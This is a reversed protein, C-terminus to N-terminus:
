DTRRLIFVLKKLVFFNLLAVLFVTVLGALYPSAILRSMLALTALSVLYNGGYSLLFRLKAPHADRFVYHSYSLYNFGVGLIHALMQAVFLDLGLRVFLAYAAFGFVTNVIGAQYYRVIQKLREPLLGIRASRGKEGRQGEARQM